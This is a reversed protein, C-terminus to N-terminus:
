TAGNHNDIDSTNCGVRKPRVLLADVFRITSCFM